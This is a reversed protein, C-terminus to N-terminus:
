GMGRLIALPPHRCVGRSLAVGAMVAIATAVFFGVILVKVDPWPSAKFLFVALAGNAAVSLLTAALASLGGLTAYEVLLITQVQKTSAGLTRLLVSEKVRQDRGNLLTGILIPLGAVVIIGALGSVARSIKDILGQVTQLILTLDIATVNPFKEVMTRQLDGSSGGAPVRTTIVHFGPASELVGPPFIMFFNLNFRSWDVKRISSVRAKVPVGQVDLVLEDGVSAHLDKAIGEELSIPAPQNPDTVKTVWQGAIVTETPNLQERYSSRYERQLVWKPIVHEKELDRVPTGRVSQIRMTVIPATELVPLKQSRVLATVGELQDPQVDVLYINPSNGLDRVKFERLLLNRTLVTTLLLFAGLGLSLLFLLTQNHPRYLNSIGQRLLYPWTPRLLKRALVTLGKAALALLAFAACLGGTMTLARWWHSSDFASLLALLLAALLYFPWRRMASRFTGEQPSGDRLMSIPAIQRVRLLPLLAFACCVALGAATTEAVSLWQPSADIDIPFRNRFLLTATVQFAIGLGAGVIAGALGLVIAQVLYIGFALNGPCGLCRLIAITPVRRSIHAHVAGAVGIAGLVLAAMAMVGLYHQFNDVANGLSDRRDKPTEFRWSTDPFDDRIKRVEKPDPQRLHLHYNALSSTVLLGTRELDSLQVYAEPAFGSFKGTRPPAKTVAGLIPLEIIGLRVKDGVKAKFQDLLAPEMLIGSRDHLTQWAGPPATEIKGYYPYSGEVGRVQVLRTADATPFYLMTSFSTERSVEGARTSLQEIVEDSFPRRASIQLDSGLLAKTQMELADRAAGKLSHIAVLAAIGAIISLSFIVLRQRQARSDRWAM